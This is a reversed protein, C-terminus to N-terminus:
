RIFTSREEGGIVGMAGAALWHLRTFSAGSRRMWRTSVVLAAGPLGFRWARALGLADEEAAEPLAAQGLHRGLAALQGAVRAEWGARDLGGAADSLNAQMESVRGERGGFMAMAPLARASLAPETWDYLVGEVGACLPAPLAAPGLARLAEVRRMGLRVPGFGAAADGGPWALWLAAGAGGLLLARRPWPADLRPSPKM